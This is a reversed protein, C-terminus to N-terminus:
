DEPVIFNDAPDESLWLQLSDITPADADLALAPYEVYIDMFSYNKSDFSFEDSWEAKELRAKLETTYLSPYGDVTLTPTTVFITGHAWPTRLFLDLIRQEYLEREAPSVAYLNLSVLGTFAGVNTILKKDDTVENWYVEDYDMPEFTFPEAILKVALCPAVTESGAAVASVKGALGTVNAAIYNAIADLTVRKINISAM